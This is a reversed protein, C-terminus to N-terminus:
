AAVALQDVLGEVLPPLAAFPASVGACVWLGPADAVPGVLPNGTATFSVPVQHYTAAGDALQPWVRALGSRLRAEMWAPDPEPDFQGLPNVLSIQGLLWGSGWPALGADVIARSEELSPSQQELAQRQGLLPMVIGSRAGPPLDRDAVADGDLALVGAWSTALDPALPPWLRASAVGAALLVTDAELCGGGALGVQWPSGPQSKLDLAHGTRQEVGARALALPLAAALVCGDVRGYPLELALHQGLPDLRELVGHDAAALLAQLGSRAAALAQPDATSNATINSNSNTTSAANRAAISNTPATAAPDCDRDARAAHASVLGDAGPGPVGLTGPPNASGGHLTLQCRQWGLPGYRRELNQWLEPARRLAPAAWWPVGGYSFQTATAPAPAPSLLTVALGRERLALAALSGALGGGIVLVM